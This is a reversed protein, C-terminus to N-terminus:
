PNGSVGSRRAACHARGTRQRFDSGTGTGDGEGDRSVLPSAKLRETTPSATLTPLPQGHGNGGSGNGTPILLANSGEEGGVKNGGTPTASPEPKGGNSKAPTQSAATASGIVAIVAGVPVTQGVQVIIKSLTGTEYAVIEVNAKDTEVEAIADGAKVQDGEKILWRNITGEEMGDGMKPMTIEAM